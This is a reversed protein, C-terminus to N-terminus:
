SVRIEISSVASKLNQALVKPASDPWTWENETGPVRTLEPLMFWWKASMDEFCTVRMFMMKHAHGPISNFAFWWHGESKLAGLPVLSLHQSQDKLKVGVDTRYSYEPTEFARLEAWPKFKLAERNKPTEPPPLLLRYQNDWDERFEANLRKKTDHLNQIAELAQRGDKEIKQIRRVHPQLAEPTMPRFKLARKFTPRQWFPSGWNLWDAGFMGVSFMIVFLVYEM